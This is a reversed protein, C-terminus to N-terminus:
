IGSAQRTPHGAARFDSWWQVYEQSLPEGANLRDHQERDAGLAFARQMAMRDRRDAPSVVDDPTVWVYSDPENLWPVAACQGSPVAFRAPACAPEGALLAAYLESPAATVREDRLMQWQGETLDEGVTLRGDIENHQKRMRDLMRAYCGKLVTSPLGSAETNRPM